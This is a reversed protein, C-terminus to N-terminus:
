PAVATAPPVATLPAPPPLAARVAAKIKELVVGPAKPFYEENLQELSKERNEKEPIGLAEFLIHARVDYMRSIFPITM